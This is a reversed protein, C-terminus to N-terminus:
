EADEIKPLSAKTFGPQRGRTQVEEQQKQLALEDLEGACQVIPAEEPGPRFPKPAPDPKKKPKPIPASGRDYTPM